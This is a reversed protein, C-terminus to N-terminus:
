RHLLYSTQQSLWPGRHNSPPDEEAGEEQHRDRSSTLNLPHPGHHPFMRPDPLVRPDRSNTERSIKNYQNLKRFTVTRYYVINPILHGNNIDANDILKPLKIFFQIVVKQL